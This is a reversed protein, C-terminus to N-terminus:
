YVAFLAWEQITNRSDIQFVLGKSPYVLFFGKHHHVVQFYTGEYVKQVKALSDGVKIGKQTLINSQKTRQLFAYSVKGNTENKLYFRSIYSHEQKLFDVELKLLSNAGLIMANKAQHRLSRFNVQDVQDEIDISYSEVQQKGKSLIRKNTNSIYWVPLNQYHRNADDFYKSATQVQNRHAYVIGKIIAMKARQLATPSLNSATNLTTLANTPDGKLDYVCSLNLYASCYTKDLVLAKKLNNEAERLLTGRSGQVAIPRKFVNTLDIDIPYLFRYEDEQPQEIAAALSVVGINHYIEKTKVFRLLYTYCNYAQLNWGVAIYYNASEYLQIWKRVKQEVVRVLRKREMLTPYGDLNTNLSYHEYIRDLLRPIINLTNYNALYAIFASYADAEEDEMAYQKAQENKLLFHTIGSKRQWDNQQYFHTLEHGILFALASSADKGMEQCVDYASKEILIVNDMARYAAVRKTREIILLKPLSERYDGIALKLQKYIQNCQRYASHQTPLVNDQGYSVTWCFLGVLALLYKM